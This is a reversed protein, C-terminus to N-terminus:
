IGVCVYYGLLLNSCDSKVGTNWAFFHAATIGQSREIANCSDGSKILYYKNCNSVIGPQQPQRSSSTPSPTASRTTPTGPIAVCYYYGVFLAVSTILM